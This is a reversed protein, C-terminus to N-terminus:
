QLNLFDDMKHKTKTKIKKKTKTKQKNTKKTSTVIGFASKYTELLVVAADSSHAKVTNM